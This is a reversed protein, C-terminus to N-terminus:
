IDDIVQLILDTIGSEKAAKKAIRKDEKKNSNFCGHESYFVAFINGNRQINANLSVADNWALEEIDANLLDSHGIHLDNRNDKHRANEYCAVLVVKNIKLNSFLHANESLLRNVCQETTEGTYKGPRQLYLLGSPKGHVGVYLIKDESDYFLDIKDKSDNASYRLVKAKLMTITHYNDAAKVDIRQASAVASFCLFLCVLLFIKKM